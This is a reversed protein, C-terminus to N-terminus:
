QITALSRKDAVFLTTGLKAFVVEQGLARRRAADELARQAASREGHIAATRKVVEEDLIEVAFEAM